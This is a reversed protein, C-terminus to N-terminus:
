ATVTPSGFAQASAIASSGIYQKGAVSARLQLRLRLEHPGAGLKSVNASLLRRRTLGGPALVHSAHVVGNVLLSVEWVLGGPPTSSPPRVRVSVRLLRTGPAVTATQRVEATAGELLDAERGPLAHGLEFVFAGQPADSAAIRGQHQGLERTWPSLSM